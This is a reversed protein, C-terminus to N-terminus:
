MEVQSFEVINGMITFEMTVGDELITFVKDSASEATMGMDPCYAKFSFIIKGDEETTTVDTTYIYAMEGMGGSSVYSDEKLEYNLTSVEGQITANGTWQVGMMDDYESITKPFDDDGSSSSGDDCSVFVLSAFVVLVVLFSSFFGKKM